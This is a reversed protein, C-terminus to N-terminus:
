KCSLRLLLKVESCLPRACLHTCTFKFRHDWTLFGSWTWSSDFIAPHKGLLEAAVPWFLRTGTVASSLPSLCLTHPTSCLFPFVLFPQSFLRFKFLAYRWIIGFTELLTTFFEMWAQYGPLCRCCLAAKLPEPFHPVFDTHYGWGAAVM